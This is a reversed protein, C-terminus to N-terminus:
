LIGRYRYFCLVAFLYATCMLREYGLYLHIIDCIDGMPLTQLVHSM